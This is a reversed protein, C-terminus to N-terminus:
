ANRFDDILLASDDSSTDAAGTFDIDLVWHLYKEL